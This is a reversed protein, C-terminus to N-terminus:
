EEDICDIYREAEDVHVWGERLGLTLREKGGIVGYNRNSGGMM